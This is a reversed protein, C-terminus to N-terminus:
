HRDLYRGVLERTRQETKELLCQETAAGM